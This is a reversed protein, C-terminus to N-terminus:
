WSAKPRHRMGSVRLRGRKNLWNQTEQDIFHHDKPDSWEPHLLHTLEHVVDRQTPKRTYYFVAERKEPDLVSIGILERGRRKQWDTVQKPHIMELRIDVESLGMVNQWHFLYDEVKEAM